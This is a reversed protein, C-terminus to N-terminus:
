NTRKQRGIVPRDDVLDSNGKFVPASPIESPLDSSYDMDIEKKISSLNEYELV